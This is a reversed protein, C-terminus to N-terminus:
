AHIHTYTSLIIVGGDRPPNREILLDSNTGDTTELAQHLHSWQSHLCDFM